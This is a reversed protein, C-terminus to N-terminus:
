CNGKGAANRELCEFSAENLFTTQCKMNHSLPILQRGSVGSLHTLLVNM